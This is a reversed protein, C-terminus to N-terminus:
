FQDLETGESRMSSDLDSSFWGLGKVILVFKHTLVTHMQFCFEFVFVTKLYVAIRLCLILNHLLQRPEFSRLWNSASDVGVASRLINPVHM